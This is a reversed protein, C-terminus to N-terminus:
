DLIDYWSMGLAGPHECITVLENIQIRQYQEHDVNVEVKAQGTGYPNTVIKYFSVRGGSSDYKDIVTVRYYQPENFDLQRNAACLVCFTLFITAVVFGVAVWITQRYEKTFIFFFGWLIVCFIGGLICIFLNFNVNQLEHIYRFSAVLLAVTYPSTRNQHGPALRATQPHKIYHVFLLFLFVLTFLFFIYRISLFSCELIISYCLLTKYLEMKPDDRIIKRSLKRYFPFSKPLKRCVFYRLNSNDFYFTVIILITSLLTRWIASPLDFFIRAVLIIALILLILGIILCPLFNSTKKSKEVSIRM